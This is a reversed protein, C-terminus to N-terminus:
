EEYLHPLRCARKSRPSDLLDGRELCGEGFIQPSVSKRGKILDDVGFTLLQFFMPVDRTFLHLLRHVFEDVAHIYHICAPRVLFPSNIGEM